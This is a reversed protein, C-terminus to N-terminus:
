KGLTCGPQKMTSSEDAFKHFRCIMNDIAQLQFDTCGDEVCLQRYYTLMPLALKDRGRFLIVPEVDLDIPQGNDTKDIQASVNFITEGSIDVTPTLHHKNDLQVSTITITFNPLM